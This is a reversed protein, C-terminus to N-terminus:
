VALPVYVLMGTIVGLSYSHTKYSAWAHWSGNLALVASMMLWLIRTAIRSPDPRSHCFHSVSAFITVPV